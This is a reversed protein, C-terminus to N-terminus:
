RLRHTSTRPLLGSCGTSAWSCDKVGTEAFIRCHPPGAEARRHDAGDRGQRHRAAHRPQPGPRQARHRLAARGGDVHVGDGLLRRLGARRGLGADRCGDGQVRIPHGPQNALLDSITFETAKNVDVTMRQNLAFYGSDLLMRLLTTKIKQVEILKDAVSEGYFRHPVIYPTLAAFPIHDVQEKELLV